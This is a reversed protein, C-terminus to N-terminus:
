YWIKDNIIWDELILEEDFENKFLECTDKIAVNFTADDTMWKELELSNEIEVELNFTGNTFIAENLMWNELELNEEKAEEIFFLYDGSSFNKDSTSTNDVEANNALALVTEHYDYDPVLENWFNQASVTLSILIFSSIVATFKRAAKQVNNRTKM